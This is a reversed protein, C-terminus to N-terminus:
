GIIHLPAGKKAHLATVVMCLLHHIDAYLQQMGIRWEGSEQATTHGSAITELWWKIRSLSKAPLYASM